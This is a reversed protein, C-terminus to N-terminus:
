NDSGFSKENKVNYAGCPPKRVSPMRTEKKTNTMTDILSKKEPLITSFFM